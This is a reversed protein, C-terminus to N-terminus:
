AATSPAESGRTTQGAQRRKLLLWLVLLAISSLGSGTVIWKAFFTVTQLQIFHEGRTTDQLLLNLSPLEPPNFVKDKPLFVFRKTEHEIGYIAVVKKPYDPATKDNDDLDFLIRRGDWASRDAPSVLIVEVSGSEIWWAVPYTLATVAFGLIWFVRLLNLV